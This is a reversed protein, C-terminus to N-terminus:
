IVVLLRLLSSPVAATACNTGYAVTSLLTKPMHADALRGLGTQASADICLDVPANSLIQTNVFILLYVIARFTYRFIARHRTKFGSSEM